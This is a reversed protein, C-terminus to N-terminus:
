MHLLRMGCCEVDIKIGNRMIVHITHSNYEDREEYCAAIEDYLIRVKCNKDNWEISCESEESLNYTYQNTVIFSGLIADSSIHKLYIDIAYSQNRNMFDNLIKRANESKDM